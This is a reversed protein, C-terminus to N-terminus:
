REVSVTGEVELPTNTVEVDVNGGQVRILPIDSVQVKKNRLNKLTFPTPTELFIILLLIVIVTLVICKYVELILNFFPKKDNM